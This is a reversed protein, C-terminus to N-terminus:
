LINREIIENCISGAINRCLADLDIFDYDPNDNCNGVKGTSIKPKNWDACYGNSKIELSLYKELEYFTFHAMKLSPVGKTWLNFPDVDICSKLLSLAGGLNIPCLYPSQRIAWMAIHGLLMKEDVVWRTKDDERLKKITM